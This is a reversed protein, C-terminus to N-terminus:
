EYPHKGEIVPPCEFSYFCINFLEMIKTLIKDLSDPDCLEYRDVSSWGTIDGNIGYHTTKLISLDVWASGRKEFVAIKFLRKAPGYRACVVGAIIECNENQRFDIEFEGGSYTDKMKEIVFNCIHLAPFM